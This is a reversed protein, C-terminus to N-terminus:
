MSEGAVHAKGKCTENPSLVNLNVTVMTLTRVVLMQWSHRYHFLSFLMVSLVSAKSKWTKM